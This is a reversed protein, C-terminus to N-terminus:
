HKMFDLVHRDANQDQRREEHNRCGDRLFGPCLRADDEDVGVIEPKTIEAAVPMRMDLRRMEVPQRASPVSKQLKVTTFGTQEGLRVPM